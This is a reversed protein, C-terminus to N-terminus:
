HAVSIEKKFFLKGEQFVQIFYIGSPHDEHNLIYISENLNEIKRIEQGLLNTMTLTINQMKQNFEITTSNFSPNPYIKINSNPNKTNETLGAFWSIITDKPNMSQCAHEMLFVTRYDKVYLSLWGYLTDGTTKIKRFGVYKNPVLNWTSQVTVNNLSFGLGIYGERWNAENNILFNAQLTDAIATEFSSGISIIETLSDLYISSRSFPVYYGPESTQYKYFQSAIRADRIGDGDFDINIEVEQNSDNSYTTDDIKYNPYYLVHYHSSDYIGAEIQTFTFNFCFFTFIIFFFIKV